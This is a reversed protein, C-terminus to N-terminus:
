ARRHNAIRIREDFIDVTDGRARAPWPPALCRKDVKGGVQWPRVEGPSIASIRGHGVRHGSMSRSLGTANLTPVLALIQSIKGPLWREDQARQGPPPWPTPQQRTLDGRHPSFLAAHLSSPCSLSGPSAGCIVTCFGPTFSFGRVLGSTKLRQRSVPSVGVVPATANSHKPLRKQM